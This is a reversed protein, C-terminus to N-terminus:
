GRLFMHWLGFAVLFWIPISSLTAKLASLRLRMLLQTVLLSYVGLAIAGAMMSRCELSAYGAGEKAIALCLTALAVSPAAGFLGAFSTPKFLGGVIAFVSVVAGGIVFRVITEMREVNPKSKLGYELERDRIRL